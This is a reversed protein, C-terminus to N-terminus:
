RHWRKVSRRAYGRRDSTPVREVVHRGSSPAALEALVVALPLSNVSAMRELIVDSAVHSTRYKPLMDTVNAELRSVLSVSALVTGRVRVRSSGRDLYQLGRGTVAGALPPGLLCLSAVSAKATSHRTMALLLDSHLQLM